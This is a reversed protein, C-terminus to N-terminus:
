AFMSDWDDGESFILNRSLLKPLQAKTIAILTRRHKTAKTRQYIILFSFVQFVNQLLVEKYRLYNVTFTIHSCVLVVCDLM